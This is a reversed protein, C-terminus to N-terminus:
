IGDLVGQDFFEVIVDLDALPFLAAGPRRFCKRCISAPGLSDIHWGILTKIQRGCRSRTWERDSGYIAKHLKPGKGRSAFVPHNTFGVGAPHHLQRDM